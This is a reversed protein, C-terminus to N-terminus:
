RHFLLRVDGILAADLLLLFALLARFLLGCPSREPGPAVDEPAEAPADERREAAERQQAEQTANGRTSKVGGDVNLAPTGASKMTPSTDVFNWFSWRTQIM